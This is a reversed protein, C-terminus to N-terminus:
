RTGVTEQIVGDIAQSDRRPCGAIAQDYDTRGRVEVPVDASRPANDRRAQDFVFIREDIDFFAEVTMAALHEGVDLAVADIKVRFGAGDVDVEVVEFRL